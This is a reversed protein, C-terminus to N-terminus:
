LLCRLEFHAHMPGSVARLPKRDKRAQFLPWAWVKPAELPANAAKYLWPLLVRCPLMCTAAVIGAMARGTADSSRRGLLLASVCMSTFVLCTLVQVCSAPARIPPPPCMCANQISATSQELQPTHSIRHSLPQRMRWQLSTLDGDCQM